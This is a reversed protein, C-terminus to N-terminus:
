DRPNPKGGLADLTARATAIMLRRNSGRVQEWPVASADRTKYGFEPALREYTEHFIQALQEPQVPPLWGEGATDSLAARTTFLAARLAQGEPYQGELTQEIKHQVLRLADRKITNAAKLAEAESQFKAAQRVAVRTQKQQHTLLHRGRVLWRQSVAKIGGLINRQLRAEDREAELRAVKEECVHHSSPNHVGCFQCDAM